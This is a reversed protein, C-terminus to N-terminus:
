RGRNLLRRRMSDAVTDIVAATVIKMAADALSRIAFKINAAPPNGILTAGVQFLASVLPTTIRDNTVSGVALPGYYNRGRERRGSASTRWSLAIATNGPAASGLFTGTQGSNTTDTKSYGGIVSIDRANCEVLQVINPVCAKTQTWLTTALYNAVVDVDTPLVGPPGIRSFHYVNAIEQGTATHIMKVTGEIGGSIPIFAM